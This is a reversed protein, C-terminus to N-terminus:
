FLGALWELLPHPWLGFLINAALVFILSLAVAPTKQFMYPEQSEELFMFKIIKVYYYFAIVSNVVIFIALVTFDAEIAAALIFFKALFGALPPVGAFSLLSVALVVASLPDKKYLGSYHEITESGLANSVMIVAGLAGGNM